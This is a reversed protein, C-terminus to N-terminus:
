KQEYLFFSYMKGIQLSEVNIQTCEYYRAKTFYHFFVHHAKQRRQSSSHSVGHRQRVFMLFIDIYLSIDVKLHVLKFPFCFRLDHLGYFMCM